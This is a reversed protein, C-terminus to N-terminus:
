APTRRAPASLAQIRALAARTQDVVSRDVSRLRGYYALNRYRGIQMLTRFQTRDILDNQLLAMLIQRFSDARGGRGGAPEPQPLRAQGLASRMAAELREFLTFFDESDEQKGALDLAQADQEILRKAADTYKDPDIIRIVFAIGWGIAAIDLAAAAAVVVAKYPWAFGNLYLMALSGLVAAGTIIALARIQRYYQRILAAHIEELTDDRQQVSEMMTHVLTYGALLFAVFAAIAQASSSFLWYINEDNLATHRAAQWGASAIM